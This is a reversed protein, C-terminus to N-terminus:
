FDALDPLWEEDSEDRVDDVPPEIDVPERVIIVSDIIKEKPM